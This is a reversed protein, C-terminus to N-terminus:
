SPMTRGIGELYQDLLRRQDDDRIEREVIKAARETALEAAYARLENRAVLTARRIEEQAVERIRESESEAAKLIQEREAAAEEEAKKLLDAAESDARELEREIEALKAEAEEKAARAEALETEIKKRRDGFFAAVPQKLVYVLVAILIGFNLGKWFIDRWVLHPEALGGSEGGGAALATSAAFTGFLAVVITLTRLAARIRM